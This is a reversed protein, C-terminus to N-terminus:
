ASSRYIYSPSPTRATLAAAPVEGSLRRALVFYGSMAACNGVLCLAGLFSSGGSSGESKLINRLAGAPHEEDDDHSEAGHSDADHPHLVSWHVSGGHMCPEGACASISNGDVIASIHHARVDTAVATHMDDM